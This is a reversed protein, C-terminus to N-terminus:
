PTVQGRSADDLGFLWKSIEDLADFNDMLHLCELTACHMTKSAISEPGRSLMALIM